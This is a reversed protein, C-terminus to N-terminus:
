SISPLYDMPNQSFKTQCARCCFFYDTGDYRYVHAAGAQKVTMGCVPDIAEEDTSRVASVVEGSEERPWDISERSRQFEVTGALISLAIERPSRAGIDLGAPADVRQVDHEDVGRSRLYDRVSSARRPSAVLGVYGAGAALAREVAIEDHDGHTAVVALTMPTVMSDLADLDEATRDAGELLNCVGPVAISSISYGMVKGLAMLAAAAPQDGVILLDPRPQQPEIYIEMTGGSFCTMSLDTLGERDQEVGGGSSLRILRPRDDRIAALAERVVTPRACSGGIWGYLDGDLTVIAKDGPQGSTPRDVRVVVATAFPLGQRRLELARTLLDSDM